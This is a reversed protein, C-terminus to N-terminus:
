TNKYNWSLQGCNMSNNNEAIFAKANYGALVLKEVFELVCEKSAPILNNKASVPTENLKSIRIEIQEKISETKELFEIRDVLSDNFGNIMVYNMRIAKLKSSKIALVLLEFNFGLKKADPIIKILKQLDHHLYTIQVHNLKLKESFEICFDLFKVDFGVTSLNFYAGRHIKYISQSAKDINKTQLAGEGIGSYTVLIKEKDLLLNDIHIYNYISSIEDALLQKSYLIDGSACHQCKIPCGYSSPLEVVSKVYEDNKYHIFFGAEVIKGDIEFVYRFAYEFDWARAVYKSSSSKKM